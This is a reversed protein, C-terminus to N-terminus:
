EKETGINKGGGQGGQGFSYGGTRGGTGFSYGGCSYGKRSARRSGIDKRECHMLFQWDRQESGEVRVRRSRGGQGRQGRYTDLHESFLKGPPDFPGTQSHSKPALNQVKFRM